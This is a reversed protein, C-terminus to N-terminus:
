PVMDNQNKKFFYNVPVLLRIRTGLAKEDDSTLDDIEQVIKQNNARDYLDYLEAQMALGKKSSDKHYHAAAKRGIGDDEVEISLTAHNVMSAKIRITGKAGKNFLGHKVANEAYTLLAMNPVMINLDVHDAIEITYDIQGRKMLKELELYRDVCELEDSLKQTSKGANRIFM